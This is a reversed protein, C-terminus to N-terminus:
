RPINRHVGDDAKNIDKKESRIGIIGIKKRWWNDRKLLFFEKHIGQYNLLFVKKKENYASPPFTYFLLEPSEKKKQEHKKNRGGSREVWHGEKEESMDSLLVLLM